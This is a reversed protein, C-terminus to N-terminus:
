PLAQRTFSTEIVVITNSNMRDSAAQEFGSGSGVIGADVATGDATAKASAAVSVSAGVCITGVAVLAGAQVALGVAVAGAWGGVSVTVGMRTVASGAAGVTAGVGKGVAVGTMM